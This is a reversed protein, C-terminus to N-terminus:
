PLKSRMGPQLQHAQALLTASAPTGIQIHGIQINAAQVNTTNPLYSLHLGARLLALLLYLLYPGKDCAPPFSELANRPTM